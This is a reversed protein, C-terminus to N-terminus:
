LVQTLQCFCFLDPDLKPDLRDIVFCELTDITPMIGFIHFLPDFLCFICPQIDTPMEDETQGALTFLHHQLSRFFGILPPDVRDLIM